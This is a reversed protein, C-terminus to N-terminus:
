LAELAVLVPFYIQILKKMDKPIPAQITLNKKTKPHTFSLKWAHLLQRDINYQIWFTRNISNKGYSSDWIIPHWISTAHVRIQHMRGTELVFHILSLEDSDALSKYHTIAKQGLPDVRVKSENKANEIRLLPAKITDEGILKGDVLALYEKKIKHTQLEDLLANLTLRDKAILLVWTTDRDIRHVLSPSFTASTYKGWFYDQALQIISVEKTKHDGPHVNIHPPKNIALIWEDEYIIWSTFDSQSSKPIDDCKKPSISTKYETILEDSIYISLTNWAEIRHENDVRKGDLKIKGTRALKYIASLSASPFLKRLFRDLRQEGDNETIIIQQM